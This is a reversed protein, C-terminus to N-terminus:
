AGRRLVLADVARGDTRAYYGGRRGVEAFGAAAYLARAATNDDAVELFLSAAGLGAAAEVLARAVGHRRAQPHVALTLIEAEDAVRRAVVFGLDAGAGDQALLVVVGPGHALTEIEAASWPRDFASAHLPALAGAAQPPVARLIM